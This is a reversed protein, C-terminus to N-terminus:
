LSRNLYKAIDLAADASGDLINVHGMKRGARADTKGYLHLKNGSRQYLQDWAPNNPLWRDGLLNLMVVPSLLQTSGAPLQCLMRVQQEFQSTVTADLTYHGSNHPRPAIENVLLQDKEDVFLEVALVGVYTMADAIATAMSIAESALHDSIRAPVMSTDLIGNVHLNEAPPFATVAGADSRCLVVSIERQLAVRQELVCAVHNVQAFAQAVEERNHCLFQGKGDYGLRATKLIAPFGIQEAASDVDEPVTVPAFNATGLGLDVMFNKERLRDQAIEICNASPTLRTKAALQRVSDAPINEFEITIAACGQAMDTLAAPDTFKHCLHRSAIAGAPSNPDPDLVWVFYGMRLAETAFMRGLQGGGLVGLTSGPYLSQSTLNM